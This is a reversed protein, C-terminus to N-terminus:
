HLYCCYRLGRASQGRAVSRGLFGTLALRIGDDFGCGGFGKGGVSRGGPVVVALSVIAIEKRRIKRRVM